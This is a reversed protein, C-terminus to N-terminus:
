DKIPGPAAPLRSHQRNSLRDGRLKGQRNVPFRLLREIEAATPINHPRFIGAADLRDFIAHNMEATIGFGGFLCFGVQEKLTTERSVFDDSNDAIESMAAWYAASPVWDPRGWRVGPIVEADPVRDSRVFAPKGGCGTLRM